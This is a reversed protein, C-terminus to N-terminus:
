TAAPKKAISLKRTHTTLDDVDDDKSSKKKSKPTRPTRPAKPKPSDVDDSKTESEKTEVIEEPKQNPEQTPKQVAAEVSGAEQIARAIDKPENGYKRLHIALWAAAKYQLPVDGLETRITKKFMAANIGTNQLGEFYGLDWKVKFTTALTANAPLPQEPAIDNSPDPYQKIYDIIAGVHDSRVDVKATGSNETAARSWASSYLALAQTDVTFTKGDLTEITTM